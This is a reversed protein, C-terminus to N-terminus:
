AAAGKKSARDVDARTKWSAIDTLIQRCLDDLAAETKATAVIGAQRARRAIARVANAWAKTYAQGDRIVEDRSVLTAMERQLKLNNLAATSKFAETQAAEKANKGQQDRWWAGCAVLDYAAAKGHGGMTIVPMGKRAYDSITDPHVGLAEALQVRDLIRWRPVAATEETVKEPIARRRGQSARAADNADRTSM